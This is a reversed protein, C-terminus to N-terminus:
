YFINEEENIAELQAELFERVINVKPKHKIIYQLDIEEDEESSEYGPDGGGLPKTIPEQRQNQNMHRFLNPMYKKLNDM